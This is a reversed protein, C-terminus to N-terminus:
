KTGVTIRCMLKNSEEDYVVPRMTVLKLEAILPDVDCLRLDNFHPHVYVIIDGFANVNVGKGIVRINRREITDDLQREVKLTSLVTDPHMQSM